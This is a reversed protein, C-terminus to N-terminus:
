DRNILTESSGDRIALDDDPSVPKSTQSLSYGFNRLELNAYDDVYKNEKPKAIIAIRLVQASYSLIGYDKLTYKSCAFGQNDWGNTKLPLTKVHTDFGELYEIRVIPDTTEKFFTGTKIKHFYFTFSDIALGRPNEKTFDVIMAARSVCEPLSNPGPLSDKLCWLHLVRGFQKSEWEAESRTTQTTKIVSKKQRLGYEFVTAKAPALSCAAIMALSLARITSKLM